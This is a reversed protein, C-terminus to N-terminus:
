RFVSFLYSTIHSSQLLAAYCDVKHGWFTVGLYMDDYSRSLKDSNIISRAVKIVMKSAYINFIEVFNM